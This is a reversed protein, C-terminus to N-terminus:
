GADAEAARAFVATRLAPHGELSAALRIDMAPQRARAAAVLAPIDRTVHLGDALFYPVVVLRRMGAAAAQDTIAELPPPAPPLYAARVWGGAAALDQVMREVSAHWQPLPSGHALVVLGETGAGAGPAAAPEARTAARAAGF